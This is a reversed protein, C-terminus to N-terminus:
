EFVAEEDGEDAAVGGGLRALSIVDAAKLECRGCGEVDRRGVNWAGCTACTWPDRAPPEPLPDPRAVGARLEERWAAEDRPPPPMWEPAPGLIGEARLAAVRAANCLACDGTANNAQAEGCSPCRGPEPRQAELSIWVVRGRVERPGRWRCPAALPLELGPVAVPTTSPGGLTARSRVQARMAETRWALAARLAPAVDAPARVTVVPGPALVIEAGRAALEGWTPRPQVVPASM